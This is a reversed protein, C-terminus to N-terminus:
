DVYLKDNDTLLRYKNVVNIIERKLEVAGDVSLKALDIGLKEAMDAIVLLKKM